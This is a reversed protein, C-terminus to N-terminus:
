SHFLIHCDVVFELGCAVASYRGLQTAEIADPQMQATEKAIVLIAPMQRAHPAFQSSLSQREFEHNAVGRCV